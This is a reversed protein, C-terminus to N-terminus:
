AMKGIGIGSSMLLIESMKKSENKHNLVAKWIRSVVEELLDLMIIDKYMKIVHQYLKEPRSYKPCRALLASSGDSSSKHMNRLQARACAIANVM